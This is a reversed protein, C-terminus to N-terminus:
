TFNRQYSNQLVKIVALIQLFLQLTLSGDTGMQTPSPYSSSISASLKNLERNEGERVLLFRVFFNKDCSLELFRLIHPFHLAM